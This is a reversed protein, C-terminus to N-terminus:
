STGFRLRPHEPVTDKWLKKTMSRSSELVSIMLSVLLSYILFYLSLIGCLFVSSAHFIDFVIRTSNTYFDSPFSAVSSNLKICFKLFNKWSGDGPQNRLCRSSNKKSLRWKRKRQRLTSPNWANEETKATTQRKLLGERSQGPRVPPKRRVRWENRTGIEGLCARWSPTSTPTKM